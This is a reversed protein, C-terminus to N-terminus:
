WDYAPFGGLNPKQNSHRDRDPQQQIQIQQFILKEKEDLDIRDVSCSVLL